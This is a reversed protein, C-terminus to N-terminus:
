LLYLDKVELFSGGTAGALAEYSRREEAQFGRGLIVKFSIM